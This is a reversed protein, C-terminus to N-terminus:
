NEDTCTLDVPFDVSLGDYLDDILQIFKQSRKARETLPDQLKVPIKYGIEGKTILLMSYEANIKLYANITREDIIIMNEVIFRKPVGVIRSHFGFKNSNTM